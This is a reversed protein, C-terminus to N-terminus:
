RVERERWAAYNDTLPGRCVENGSQWRDCLTYESPDNDCKDGQCNMLVVARV